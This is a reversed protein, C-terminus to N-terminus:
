EPLLAALAAVSTSNAITEMDMSVDFREQFANCINLHALSDWEPTNEMAAEPGIAQEPVNLVSAVLAAVQTIDGSM